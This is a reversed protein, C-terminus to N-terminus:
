DSMCLTLNFQVLMIYFYTSLYCTKIMTSESVGSNLTVQNNWGLYIIFLSSFSNNISYLLM